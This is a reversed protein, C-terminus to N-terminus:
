LTVEIQADVIAFETYATATISAASATTTIASGGRIESVTFSDTRLTSGGVVYYIKGAVLPAPPASFSVPQNAVCGHATWSVVGPAAQSISVTGTVPAAVSGGFAIDLGGGRLNIEAIVPNVAASSSVPGFGGSSGYLGAEVADDNLVRLWFAIRNGAYNSTTLAANFIDICGYLGGGADNVGVIHTKSAANRTGAFQAWGKIYAGPPLQERPITIRGMEARATSTGIMSYRVPLRYVVAGSVSAQFAAKQEATGSDFAVQLGGASNSSRKFAM